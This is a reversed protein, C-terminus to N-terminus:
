LAHHPGPLSVHFSLSLGLSHGAGGPGPTHAECAHREGVCVIGEGVPCGSLPARPGDAARSMNLTSGWSQNLEAQTGACVCWRAHPGAAGLEAM